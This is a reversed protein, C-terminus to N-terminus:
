YDFLPSTNIANMKAVLPAKFVLPKFNMESVWNESQRVLVSKSKKELFEEFMKM